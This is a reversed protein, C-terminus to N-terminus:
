KTGIVVPQYWGTDEPFLWEVARRGAEELAGRSLDSASVRYGLRALGIAQTGIGCACDLVSADDAVGNARFLARLFEGESRSAADWDAYFGTYQQALSDYFRQVVDAVIPSKEM